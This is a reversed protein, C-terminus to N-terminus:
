FRSFGTDPEQVETVAGLLESASRALVFYTWAFRACALCFLAGPLVGTLEGWTRWWWAMGFTSLLALVAYLIAQNFSQRAPQSELDDCMGYLYAAYVGVGALQVLMSTFSDTWLSLLMMLLSAVLKMRTSFSLPGFLCLIHGLLGALWFILLGLGLWSFLGVDFSYSILSLVFGVPPVFAATGVLRLGFILLRMNSMNRSVAGEVVTETDPYEHEAEFHTPLPRGQNGEGLCTCAM